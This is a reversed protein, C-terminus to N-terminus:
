IFAWFSIIYFLCVFLVGSVNLAIRLAKKAQLLNWLFLPSGNKGNAHARISSSLASNETLNWSHLLTCFNLDAVESEFNYETRRFVTEDTQPLHGIPVRVEPLSSNNM